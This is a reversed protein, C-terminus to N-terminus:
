PIPNPNLNPNPNPNVENIQDLWTLLDPFAETNFNTHEPLYTPVQREFAKRLYYEVREHALVYDRPAITKIMEEAEEKTECTLVESWKPKETRLVFEGHEYVDKDKRCYNNWNTPSRISQVNPHFGLIDFERENRTRFNTTWQLHVHLHSNGDQHREHAVLISADIYKLRLAHLMDEKSVDCQAFTLGVNKANIQFM